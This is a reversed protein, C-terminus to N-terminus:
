NDYAGCGIVEESGQIKSVYAIKNLTEKTEPHSWKYKVWGNNNNKVTDIMQKFFANGDQDKVNYLNNGVLASNGGHALTTGEFDLVFLYLDDKVFEGAPDNFTKFAQNKQNNELYALASNVHGKAEEKSSMKKANGFEISSFLQKFKESLDSLADSNIKIKTSSKNTDSVSLSLQKIEKSIKKTSELNKNIKNNIEDIGRAAQQVNTVVNNSTTSQEQVISAISSINENVDNVVSSVNGIEAVAGQTISRIDDIKAAIDDTAQATQKALAKIENAVVAFGKGAEGARAAEITANLALLNTQDSITNIAETVQGIENAAHELKNIQEMAINAQKVADKTTVETKEVFQSTENISSNIEEMSTVVASINSTSQVMATAVADIDVAMENSISAVSDAKAFTIKMNESMQEFVTKLEKSAFMLSETFGAISLFSKRFYNVMTNLVGSLQGINDEKDSAFSVRLDGKSVKKANSNIQELPLSL